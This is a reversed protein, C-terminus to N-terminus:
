IPLYVHLQHKRAFGFQYFVRKSIKHQINIKLKKAKKIEGNRVLITILLIIIENFRLFYYKQPLTSSSFRKMM